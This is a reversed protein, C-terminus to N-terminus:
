PRTASTRAARWGAMRRPAVEALFGLGAPAAEDLEEDGRDGDHRVASASGVVEPKRDLAGLGAVLNRTGIIRSDRIRRKKDQSWRGEAVPEGALNFVGDIGRPAELPAREAAPDWRVARGVGLAGTAKAPDRSRVVADTLNALPENGLLRTGGTILAEM